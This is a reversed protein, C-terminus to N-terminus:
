LTPPASLWSMFCTDSRTSACSPLRSVSTVYVRASGNVVRSFRIAAEDMGARDLDTAVITEFGVSKLATAVDSADNVPNTLRPVNRYAGNGIVLAVRTDALCRDAITMAPLPFMAVILMSLFPRIKM